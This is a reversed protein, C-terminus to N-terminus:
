VYTTLPWLSRSRYPKYHLIIYTVTISSWVLSLHLIELKARSQWFVNTHSVARHVHRNIRLQLGQVSAWLGFDDCRQESRSKTKWKNLSMKKDQHRWSFSFYKDKERCWNCAFTKFIIKYTVSVQAVRRTDATAVIFLSSHVSSWGLSDRAKEGSCATM